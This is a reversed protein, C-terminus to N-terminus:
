PKDQSPAANSTSSDAGIQAKLEQIEVVLRDREAMM